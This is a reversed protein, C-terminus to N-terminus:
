LEDIGWNLISWGPNRNAAASRCWRITKEGGWELFGCRRLVRQAAFDDDVTEAMFYRLGPQEKGWNCLEYVAETMYGLHTHPEGLAYRLQAEGKDNPPGSFAVQGVAIRDRKRLILWVTNWLWQAPDAQVQRARAQLEGRQKDDLVPGQYICDLSQELRPLDEALDELQEATLPVLYLRHTNIEM